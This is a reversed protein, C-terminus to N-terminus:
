EAVAEHNGLCMDGGNKLQGSLRICGTELKHANHFIEEKGLVPWVAEIDAGIASLRGTLCDSMGVQVKDRSVSAIHRVRTTPNSM